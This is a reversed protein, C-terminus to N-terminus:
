SPLAIVVLRQRDLFGVCTYLTLQPTLTPELIWTDQPSVTLVQSVTFRQVTGNSYTVFLHHGPRTKVLSGLLNPWNHGYIISNGPQGPPPSSSLHTVGRPTTPWRNAQMSASIIPVSISLDPLFLTQPITDTSLSAPPTAPIPAMRQWVHYGAISLSALSFFALVLSLSLKM